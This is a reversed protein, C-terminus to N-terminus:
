FSFCTVWAGMSMRVSTVVITEDCLFCYVTGGVDIYGPIGRFTDFM